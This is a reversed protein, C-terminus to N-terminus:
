HLVYDSTRVNKAGKKILFGQISHMEFRYEFASVVQLKWYVKGHKHQYNPLEFYSLPLLHNTKKKKKKKKKPISLRGWQKAKAV